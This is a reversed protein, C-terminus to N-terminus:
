DIIPVVTNPKKHVLLMYPNSYYLAPDGSNISEKECTVLGKTTDYKFKKGSLIVGGDETTVDYDSTYIISDLTNTPIITGNYKLLLYSMYIRFFVDDRYKIFNLKCGDNMDLSNYYKDLDPESIITKRLSFSDCVLKQLESNTLRDAGSIADSSASITTPIYVTDEDDDPYTLTIDEGKYTFNGSKGVTTEIEVKLESNFVPRFYGANSPFLLEITNDGKMKYFCYKGGPTTVTGELHKEIYVYESDPTEKYYINFDALQDTFNFTHSINELMNPSTITKYQYNRNIQKLTPYIYVMMRNYEKFKALKIYPAKLFDNKDEPYVYKCTYVFEGNIKKYKISIPYELSFKFGSIDVIVDKPILYEGESVKDNNYRLENEEFKWITDITSAKATIGSIQELSAYTLISESLRATNPFCEGIITALSYATMNTGLSFLENVYGYTSARYNSENDLNLYKPAIQNHIYEEVDFRDGLNLLHQVKEAM